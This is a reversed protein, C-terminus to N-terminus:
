TRRHPGCGKATSCRACGIPGGHRLEGDVVAARRGDYGIARVAALTREPDRRMANRVTYLELGIRALRRAPRGAALPVPRALAAAGAAAGLTTVFRRRDM